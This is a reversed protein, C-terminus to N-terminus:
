QLACCSVKAEPQSHTFINPVQCKAYFLGGKTADERVAGLQVASVAVVRVNANGERDWACHELRVLMAPSAEQPQGGVHLFLRHESQWAERALVRYRPEFFNLRAPEGRVPAPRLSFIPLELEQAEGQGRQPSALVDDFSRRLAWAAGDHDDRGICEEAESCARQLLALIHESSAEVELEQVATRAAATYLGVCMRINGRNYEPAGEQIAARLMRRVRAEGSPQLSFRSSAAPSSTAAEPSSSGAVEAYYLGQTGEGVWVRQLIVSELGRGQINARGDPLFSARDVQVVLGTCGQRPERQTCLFRRNGEWCNRILIRYRPEFFHLRVDQGPSSAVGQMCFVPLQGKRTELIEQLKTADAQARAAIDAAPVVEKLNAELRENSPHAAPDKIDIIARCEPCSRGDPALRTAQFLCLRCFTHGCNLTLPECFFELCVPCQLGKELLIAEKGKQLAASAAPSGSAAVQGESM